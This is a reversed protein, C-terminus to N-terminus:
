GVSVASVDVANSGANAALVAGTMVSSDDCQGNFIVEDGVRHTMHCPYLDM